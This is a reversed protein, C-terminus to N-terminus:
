ATVGEPIREARGCGKVTCYRWGALTPSPKWNHDHHGEPQASPTAPAEGDDAEGGVRGAPPPSGGTSGEEGDRGSTVSPQTSSRTPSSTGADPDADDAAIRFLAALAYRRAYTVSGGRTQDDNGVLPYPGLELWQGSSHLVITYLGDGRVEQVVALSVADLHPRVHDLITPLDAYMLPKGSRIAGATNKPPNKIERQAAYLSAALEDLKESHNM